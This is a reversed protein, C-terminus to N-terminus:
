CCEIASTFSCVNDKHQAVPASNARALSSSAKGVPNARVKEREEDEEEEEERAKVAELRAEVWDMVRGITLMGSGGESDSDSVGQQIMQLLDQCAAAYGSNHARKSTDRSSRYLTTISLAAATPGSYQAHLDTFSHYHRVRSTTSFNKRPM